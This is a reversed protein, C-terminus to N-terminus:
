LDHHKAQHGVVKDFCHFLIPLETYYSSLLFVQAVVSSTIHFCFLFGIVVICCNMCCIFATVQVEHYQRIAAIFCPKLGNILEEGRQQIAVRSYWRTCGGNTNAVFGVVSNSKQAGEHYTDIGCVM